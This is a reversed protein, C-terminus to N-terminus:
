RRARVAGVTRGVDARRRRRRGLSGGMGAASKAIDAATRTTTGEKLMEVAVDALWTSEGEDINGTRVVAFVTVKPVTGYDVFTLSLGNALQLTERAPLRFEHPAGPAPPLEREAAAGAAAALLLSLAALSRM